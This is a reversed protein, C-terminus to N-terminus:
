CIVACREIIRATIRILPGSYRANEETALRAHLLLEEHFIELEHALDKIDSPANSIADAVEYLQKSISYVVGALQAVSAIAGSYRSDLCIM